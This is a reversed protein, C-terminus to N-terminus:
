KDFQVPIGRVSGRQKYLYILNLAYLFIVYHAYGYHVYQLFLTSITQRM